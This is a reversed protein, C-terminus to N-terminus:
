ERPYVIATAGDIKLVAATAGIPIVVSDDIARATWEEGGIRVRGNRGSVEQLVYAPKGLLADVGFDISRPASLHRQAIPRVVIVGVASTVAFVVLQLPVPLGIMASVSAILAAVGLLGLAATLTFIEAVAFVVAIILWIVWVDMAAPGGARTLPGSPGTYAQRRARRTRRQGVSQASAAAFWILIEVDKAADSRALLALWSLVRTLLLYTLRFAV